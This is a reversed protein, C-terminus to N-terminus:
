AEGLAKRLAKVGNHILVGVNSVSHGTIRSIDKYSLGNQFKLRIVEQQSEPLSSLADLITSMGERTAEERATRTDDAAIPADPSLHVMRQEKRLVDFALNRCVTFLWPALAEGTLEAPPQRWLKLFTEQVADRARAEDGLISAAYRVLPAEFRDLAAELAARQSQTM